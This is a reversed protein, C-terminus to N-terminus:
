YDFLASLEEIDAISAPTMMSLSAALGYRARRQAREATNGDATDAYCQLSLDDAVTELVDRLDLQELGDQPLASAGLRAGLLTGTILGTASRHGDHSVAAQVGGAFDEARVACLVGIALAEDATRGDGLRRIGASVTVQSKALKLAIRVALTVEEHGPYASLEKLADKAATTISCGCLVRYVMLSFAGAALQATIHGHTVLAADCAWELAKSRYCWRPVRYNLARAFMGVPAVRMLGDCDKSDNGAADDLRTLTTLSDMVAKGPSRRCHLAAHDLLWGSAVQHQLSPSEGQTCLWRLYAAALTQRVTDPDHRKEAALPSLLGEATFLTLQTQHTITGPRWSTRAPGQLDDAGAAQRIEGGPMSGVNAGLSDGLAGGLLCGRFHERLGQKSLRAM